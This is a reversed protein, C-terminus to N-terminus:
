VWIANAQILMEKLTGNLQREMIENTGGVLRGGIFVVPVIPNCGLRALARELERGKPDEDLEHVLPSAGFGSILTKISHCMCCSSKSFIVVPKQTTLMSLREM